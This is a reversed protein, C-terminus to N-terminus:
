LFLIRDWVKKMIADVCEGVTLITTDIVIDPNLPEEYATSIGTFNSIEGSLAKKYLGKPDRATCTDIDAKVFVEFFYEEGIISRARKRMQGLPSIVSVITIVGADRFLSATHAIRRINEQRDEETFGLNSNLGHRINDGDLVYALKKNKSFSAALGAALTSKGSGSLGTLWIVIGTQRLLSCRDRYSVPTDQWFINTNNNEAM